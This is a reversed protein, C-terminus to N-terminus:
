RHEERRERLRATLLPEAAVVRPTEIMTNLRQYYSIPTIGLARIAKEKTGQYRWNRKEIGVIAAELDTLGGAPATGGSQHQQELHQKKEPTHSYPQHQQQVDPSPAAGHLPVPETNKM